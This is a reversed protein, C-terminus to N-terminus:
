LEKGRPDIDPTHLPPIRILDCTDSGDNVSLPSVTSEVMVFASVDVASLPLHLIILAPVSTPRQGSAPVSPRQETNFKRGLSKLKVSWTQLSEPAIKWRSKIWVPKQTEIRLNYPPLDNHPAFLCLDRAVIISRVVETVFYDRTLYRPVFCYSVLSAMMKLSQPLSGKWIVRTLFQNILLCWCFQREARHRQSNM